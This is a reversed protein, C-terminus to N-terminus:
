LDIIFGLLSFLDESPGRTFLGLENLRYLLLLLVLLLLLSLLLHLCHFFIRSFSARAFPEHLRYLLLLLDRYCSCYTWIVVVIRIVIRARVACTTIFFCYLYQILMIHNQKEGPEKGCAERYASRMPYEITPRWSDNKKESFCVNESTLDGVLIM